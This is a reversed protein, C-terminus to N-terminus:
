GGRISPSLVELVAKLLLFCILRLSVNTFEVLPGALHAIGDTPASVHPIQPSSSLLLTYPM